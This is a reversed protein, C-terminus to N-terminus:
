KAAVLPLSVRPPAAKIPMPPAPAVADDTRGHMHAVEDAAMGYACLTAAFEDALGSAAMYGTVDPKIWSEELRAAAANVLHSWDLPWPDRTPTGNPAALGPPEHNRSM